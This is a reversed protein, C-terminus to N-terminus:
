VDFDTPDVPGTSEIVTEEKHPGRKRLFQEFNGVMEKRRKKDVRRETRFKVHPNKAWSPKHRMKRMHNEAAAHLLLAPASDRNHETLTLVGRKNSFEAYEMHERVYDRGVRKSFNDKPSCLSIAYYLKDGIRTGGITVFGTNVVLHAYTFEKAHTVVERHIDNSFDFEVEAPAEEEFSYAYMFEHYFESFNTDRM